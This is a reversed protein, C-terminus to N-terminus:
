YLIEGVDRYDILDHLSSTPMYYRKSQMYTIPAAEAIAVFDDYGVVKHMDMYFPVNIDQPKTFDISYILIATAGFAVATIELQAFHLNNITRVILQVVLWSVQLIALIKVLSDSKNKDDIAEEKIDPMREIIGRKRAIALQKSDLIWINGALAAVDAKSFVLKTQSESEATTQLEGTPSPQRDGEMHSAHEVHNEWLDWPIKGCWNLLRGQRRCFAKIFLPIKNRDKLIRQKVEFEPRAAGAEAKTSMPLFRLAIGGMDVLMTHKLSWPVGDLHALKELM